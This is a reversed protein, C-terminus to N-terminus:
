LKENPRKEAVTVDCMPIESHKKKRFIVFVLVRGRTLHSNNKPDSTDTDYPQRDLYYKLDYSGQYVTSSAVQPDNASM